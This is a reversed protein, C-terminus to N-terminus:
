DPMHLSSIDLLHVCHPEPVFRTALENALSNLQIHALPYRSIPRYCHWGQEFYMGPQEVHLEGVTHVWHEPVSLDRVGLVRHWHM